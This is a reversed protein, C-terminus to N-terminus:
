KAMGLSLKSGYRALMMATSERAQAMLAQITSQDASQKQVAMTPNAAPPTFQPVAAPTDVPPTPLSAPASPNVAPATAPPSLALYGMPGGYLGGLAQMASPNIGGAPDGM